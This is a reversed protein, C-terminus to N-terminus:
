KKEARESFDVLADCLMVSRVDQTLSLDFKRSCNSTPSISSFPNKGGLSTASLRPLNENSQLHLCSQDNYDFTEDAVLNM